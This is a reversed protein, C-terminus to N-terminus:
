ADKDRLTLKLKGELFDATEVVFEPDKNTIRAEKLEQPTVWIAKFVKCQAHLSHRHSLNKFDQQKM